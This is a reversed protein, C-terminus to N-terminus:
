EIINKEMLLNLIRNVLDPHLKIYHCIDSFNNTGDCYQIVNLVDRSNFESKSIGLSEYLDYKSLHAEGIFTQRFYKESELISVIEKMVKLSQNLSEDSIFNLDDLSTHYESYEGYPSKMVSVMPIALRPSSFQREDSGRDLFDKMNPNVGFNKLAKLTVRDPLSNGYQTPLVTFEDPGGMCTFNWGAIVNEKLNKENNKIYVLAGLTESHFTIRYTFHRKEKNSLWLSLATLVAPGSLENNAMSPHCIYSSLLIEKRTEGPLVIEGSHLTGPFHESKLVVRYVGKTNFQLLQRESLCFGWQKVYYSTLYPIAEDNGKHTFLNKKLESFEMVQNISISYGIVHLNSNKVDILRTGDLDEIYAEVVRWEKPVVWDYAQFGTPVESIELEPVIGKIYLLTELNGEGM